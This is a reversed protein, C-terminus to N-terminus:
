RGKGQMQRRPENLRVGQFSRRSRSDKTIPMAQAAPCCVCVSLLPRQLLWTVPVLATGSAQKRDPFARHRSKPKVDTPKSSVTGTVHRKQKQSKHLVFALLDVSALHQDFVAAGISRPQDTNFGDDDHM